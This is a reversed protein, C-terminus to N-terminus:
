WVTINNENIIRIENFINKTFFRAFLIQISKKKEKVDFFSGKGAGEGGGGFFSFFFDIVVGGTETCYKNVKIGAFFM